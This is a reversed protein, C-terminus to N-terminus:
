SRQKTKKSHSSLVHKVTNVVPMYKRNQPTQLSATLHINKNFHSKKVVLFSQDVPGVAKSLSPGYKSIMPCHGRDVIFRFAQLKDIISLKWVLGDSIPLLM